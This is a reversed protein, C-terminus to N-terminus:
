GRRPDQILDSAHAHLASRYAPGLRALSVPFAKDCVTGLM